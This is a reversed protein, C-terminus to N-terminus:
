FERIQFYDKNQYTILCSRIGTEEYVDNIVQDNQQVFLHIKCDDDGCALVPVSPPSFSAESYTNWWIIM